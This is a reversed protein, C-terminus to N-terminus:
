ETYKHIAEFLFKTDEVTKALPGIQDFSSAMAILGSRSVAGYTPKLGVIGCFSAPQRVSGGTDSGFAGLALNDAVAAASGGSSGGPVRATDHPNKVRGFASFENSSGMAFEDMNTRGIFVVNRDKLKKIVWADYVATYGELIKSACSVRRGEILINDKIAIPIGTLMDSKDKETDIIKQANDAQELVDEYVELYVNLEKNREKIRRLYAEALERASFDGNVLHEHAKKITINELDIKM